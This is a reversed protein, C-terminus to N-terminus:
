SMELINIKDIKFMNLYNKITLLIKLNKQM